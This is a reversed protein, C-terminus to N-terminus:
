FQLKKGKRRRGDCLFLFTVKKWWKKLKENRGGNKGGKYGQTEQILQYDYNCLYWFSHTLM